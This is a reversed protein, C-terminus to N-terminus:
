LSQIAKHVFPIIVTGHLKVILARYVSCFGLIATLFGPIMVSSVGKGETHVTVTCIFELM